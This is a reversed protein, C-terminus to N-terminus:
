TRYRPTSAAKAPASRATTTDPQSPQPTPRAGSTTDRAARLAELERVVAPFRERYVRASYRARLVSGLLGLPRLPRRGQLGARLLQDVHNEIMTDSASLVSHSFGAAAFAGAIQDRGVRELSDRAGPDVTMGRDTAARILLENRVLERLGIQVQEDNARAFYSRIQEPAYHLFDVFEATTVEGGQYTALKQKRRAATLVLLPGASAIERASSVAGEPIAVDAAAFLSDLYQQELQQIKQDKLSARFEEAIEGLPPQRREHLKIIHLGFQSQVVPSVQGPQLALVAAEFEPVTKGREFWPLMGGQSASTPDASYRRALDAFTEGAAARRRVSEALARVSDQGSPEPPLRLLIHSARFELGPLQAEYAARLEEDSIEARPVIEAERLRWVREQDTPFKVLPEIPLDSFSDPSAAELALLTYETWLNTFREVVDLNAPAFGPSALALMEATKQITLRHGGAQAVIDGHGTLADQVTECGAVAWASVLLISVYARKM